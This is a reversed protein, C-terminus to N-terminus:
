RRKCQQHVSLAVPLAQPLLTIMVHPNPKRKRAAGDERGMHKHGQETWRKYRGHLHQIALLHRRKPCPRQQLRTLQALRELRHLNRIFARCLELCCGPPQPQLHLDPAYSCTDPPTAALPSRPLSGRLM